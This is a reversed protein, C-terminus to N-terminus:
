QTCKKYMYDSSTCYMYILYGRVKIVYYTQSHEEEGEPPSMSMMLIEYRKRLREIKAIRNHLESSDFFVCVYNYMANNNSSSCICYVNFGMLPYMYLHQSSQKDNVTM